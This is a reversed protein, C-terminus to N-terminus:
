FYVPLSTNIKIKEEFFMSIFRTVNKWPVMYGRLFVKSHEKSTGLSGWVDLLGMSKLSLLPSPSCLACSPM